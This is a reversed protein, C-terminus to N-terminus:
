HGGGGGGMGVRLRNQVVSRRPLIQKLEKLHVSEESGDQYVIQYTDLSTSDGVQAEFYHRVDGKLEQGNVEKAVEQGVLEAGVYESLLRRKGAKFGDGPVYSSSEKLYREQEVEAKVDYEHKAEPSLENWKDGLEKTVDQFTMEPRTKRVEERYDQTFLLYASLPKKPATPDKASKKQRVPPVGGQGKWERLYKQINYHFTKRNMGLAEAAEKRTMKGEDVQLFTEEWHTRDHKKYAGRKGGARRKKAPSGVDNLMPAGGGGIGNGMMSPQGMGGMMNQAVMINPKMDPVMQQQMYGTHQM